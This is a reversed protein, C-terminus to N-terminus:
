LRADSGGIVRAELKLEDQRAALEEVTLSYDSRRDSVSKPTKGSAKAIGEERSPWYNTNNSYYDNLPGLDGEHVSSSPPQSSNFGLGHLTNGLQQQLWQRRSSLNFENDNSNDANNSSSDDNYGGNPYSDGMLDSSSSSSGLQTAQNKKHATLLSSFPPPRQRRIKLEKIASQEVSEDAQQPYAVKSSSSRTMDDDIDYTRLGCEHHNYDRVNMSVDPRFNSPILDSPVPTTTSSRSRTFRDFIGYQWSSEAIAHDVNDAISSAGSAADNYGSPSNVQKSVNSEVGSGASEQQKTAHFITDTIMHAKQPVIDSDNAAASLTSSDNVSRNVLQDNDASPASSLNFPQQQTANKNALQYRAGLDQLFEILDYEVLDFTWDDKLSSVDTAPQISKNNLLLTENILLTLDATNNPSKTQTSENASSSPQNQQTGNIKSPVVSVIQQPAAEVTALVIFLGAVLLAATQVTARVTSELTTMTAFPKSNSYRRAIQSM